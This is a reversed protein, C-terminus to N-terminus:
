RFGKYIVEIDDSFYETCYKIKVGLPQNEVEEWLEFFALGFSREKYVGEPLEFDCYCRYYSINTCNVDYVDSYTKIYRLKM